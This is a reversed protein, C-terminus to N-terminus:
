WAWWLDGTNLTCSPPTIDRVSLTYTGAVGNGAAVLYYTGAATPTFTIQSNFNDGDIDDNGTDAIADGESDRINLLEPNVLTGGNTDGGEMDIQYTKDAELVVKFWDQDGSVGINGTASAGVDVQCTTIAHNPCDNGGESAGNAGLLIVSVTYTGTDSEEADEM